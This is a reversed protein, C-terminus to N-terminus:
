DDKHQTNPTESARAPEDGMPQLIFGPLESCELFDGAGRASSRADGIDVIAQQGRESCQAASRLFEFLSATEIEQQGPKDFVVVGPHNTTFDALLEMSALYYAWKLRVADSASIEFNIEKEVTEGNETMLVLPRFNDNSLSIEGSPFSRFGYRDLHLRVAAQLKDLKRKDANTLEDPPLLRLASAAAAWQTAIDSLEDTLSISVATSAVCATLSHRCAFM